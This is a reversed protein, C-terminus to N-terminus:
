RCYIEIEYVLQNAFDGVVKRDSSVEIVYESLFNKTLYRNLINLSDIFRDHKMSRGADKENKEERSMFFWNYRIDSYQKALTFVDSLLEQITSDDIKRLEFIKKTEANM